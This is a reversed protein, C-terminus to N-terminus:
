NAREEKLGLKLTVKGPVGKQGRSCGVANMRPVKHGKASIVAKTPM